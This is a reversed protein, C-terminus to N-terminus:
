RPTCTRAARRRPCCPRTSPGGLSSTTLRARPSYITRRDPRGAARLGLEARNGADPVFIPRGFQKEGFTQILAQADASGLYELLARAGAEDIWAGKAPNIVLIHYLRLLDPAGEVVVALDLLDRRELFTLRDALAYAQRETTAALTQVM